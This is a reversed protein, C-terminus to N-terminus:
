LVQVVEGFVQIGGKGGDDVRRRVNELADSRVRVAGAGEVGTSSAVTGGSGAGRTKM